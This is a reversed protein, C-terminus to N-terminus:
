NRQLDSRLAYKPARGRVIEGRMRGEELRLSLSVLVIIIDRLFVLSEVESFHGVTLSHWLDLVDSKEPRLMINVIADSSTEVTKDHIVFDIIEEVELFFKVVRDSLKLKIEGEKNEIWSDDNCIMEIMEQETCEDLTDVFCQRICACRSLWVKSGLRLGKIYIDQLLKRLHLIFARREVDDNIAYGATDQEPQHKLMSSYILEALKNLFKTTLRFVVMGPIPSNLPVPHEVSEVDSTLFKLSELLSNYSERDNLMKNLNVLNEEYQNSPMIKTPNSLNMLFPESFKEVFHCWDNPRTTTAKLICEVYKKKEEGYELKIEELSETVLADIEPVLVDTSPRRSNADAVICCM